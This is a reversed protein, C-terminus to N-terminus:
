EVENTSFAPYRDTLLLSYANTQAQFRAIWALLGFIGAPLAGTFLIIFWGIVSVMLGLYGLIGNVISAPIVLLFRFGTIWRNQPAPPAVIANVPYDGSGSFSPYPDSMLGLYAYVQTSYRLYQALFDHIGQPTTGAFLTIFWSVIAVISAAIGWLSVWVLHPIVLILRILVTLRNREPAAFAALSVPHPM